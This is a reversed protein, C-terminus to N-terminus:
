ISPKFLLPAPAGAFRLALDEALDCSTLLLIYSTSSPPPSTLSRCLRAGHWFAGRSSPVHLPIRWPVMLGCTLLWLLKRIDDEGLQDRESISSTQQGDQQTTGHGCVGGSLPSSQHLSVLCLLPNLIDVRDLGRATVDRTMKLYVDAGSGCPAGALAKNEMFDGVDVELGSIVGTIM